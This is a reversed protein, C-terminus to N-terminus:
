KESPQNLIGTFIVVFFSDKSELYLCSMKKMEWFSRISNPDWDAGYEVRVSSDLPTLHVSRSDSREVETGLNYTLYEHHAWPSSDTQTFLYFSGTIM